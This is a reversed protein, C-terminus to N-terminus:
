RLTVQLLEPALVFHDAGSGQNMVVAVTTRAALDYLLLSSGFPSGGSHGIQTRGLYAYGRLGLGSGTEGPINGAASVMTRMEQQMLSSIVRKSYLAHGWRAVTRANAFLGYAANGASLRAPHSLPDVISSGNLVNAVPGPTAEHGPLFIETLRLPRWLRTHYLSVISRGTVREAIQGLLVFSTNTYQTRTGPEFLPPRLFSLLEDATFVHMPDAAIAQTLGNAASYNDLGNTHNLLQRITIDGPVNARPALWRSIPDDLSLAKEDALQLIVAATMTKTISAISILQGSGLTSNVGDRGAVGSWESGDALIVAASVGHHGVGGAWEDLREQLQRAVEKDAFSRRKGSLSMNSAEELPHDPKQGLIVAISVPLIAIMVLALRVPRLMVFRFHPDRIPNIACKNM